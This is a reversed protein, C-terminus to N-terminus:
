TPFTYSYGKNEASSPITCTDCKLLSFCTNKNTLIVAFHQSMGLPSENTQTGSSCVMGKNLYSWLFTKKMM